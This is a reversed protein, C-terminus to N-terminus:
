INEFKFLLFKVQSIVLVSRLAWFLFLFFSFIKVFILLTKVDQVMRRRLGEDM